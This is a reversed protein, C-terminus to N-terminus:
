QTSTSPPPPNKEKHKNSYSEYYVLGDIIDKLTSYCPQCNLHPHSLLSQLCTGPGFNVTCFKSINRIKYTFMTRRANTSLVYTNEAFYCASNRNGGMVALISQSPLIKVEQDGQYKDLTLEVFDAPDGSVSRDSDTDEYDDVPLFHVAQNEPSFYIVQSAM